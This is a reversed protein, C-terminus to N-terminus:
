NDLFSIPNYIFLPVIISLLIMTGRKIIYAEIQNDKIIKWM